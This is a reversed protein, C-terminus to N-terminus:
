NKPESLKNDLFTANKREPEVFLWDCTYGYDIERHKIVKLAHGEPSTEHHKGNDQLTMTRMFLIPENYMGTSNTAYKGDKWLYNAVNNANNDATTRQQGRQQQNTLPLVVWKDQSYKKVMEIDAVDQLYIKKQEDIAWPQMWKSWGSWNQQQKEEDTYDRNPDFKQYHKYFLYHPSDDIPDSTRKSGARTSDYIVRILPQKDTTGDNYAVMFFRSHSESAGNKIPQGNKDVIIYTSDRHVDFNAADFKADALMGDRIKTGIQDQSGKNVQIIYYTFHYLYKILEDNDQIINLAVKGNDSIKINDFSVFLADKSVEMLPYSSSRICTWLSGDNEDRLVDGRKYYPTEYTPEIYPHVRSNYIEENCEEAKTQPGAEIDYYKNYVYYDEIGNEGNYFTTYVSVNTGCLDEGTAHRVIFRPAHTGFFTDSFLDCRGNSYRSNINLDQVQRMDQKVTRYTVKHMNSEKGKGNMYNAEYLSLNWSTTTWWSYGSYLLNLGCQQLYNEFAMQNYGFLTQFMNDRKEGKKGGGNEWAYKVSNFFWKNNLPKRKDVIFDYWMKPKTSGNLNDDWQDPYLIAYILEALNQMQEKNTGIGTPVAYTIKNSATYEWINEKPLPSLTVWHSEEKGAAGVAPRVCVWYEVKQKNGDKKDYYTRKVVDGFRYYATGAFTGNTGAQEQTRYVIQQLGPMQRINVDVTALSQGDNSKHYTLTGVADNKWTYDNTNEDVDSVNVLNAFRGAASALDETAVVRVTSNGDLPTGITPEFTKGEYNTDMDITSTLQGVVDWFLNAANQAEEYKEEESKSDDDDDSCAVFTMSLGCVLAGMLWINLKTKM